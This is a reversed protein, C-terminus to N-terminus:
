RVASPNKLKLLETEIQSTLRAAEAQLFKYSYNENYPSYTIKNLAVTASNRRSVYTTYLGAIHNYKDVPVNKYDIGNNSLFINFQTFDQM